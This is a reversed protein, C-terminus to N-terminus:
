KICGWRNNIYLIDGRTATTEAIERLEAKHEPMAYRTEVIEGQMVKM